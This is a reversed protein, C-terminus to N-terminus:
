SGAQSVSDTQYINGRPHPTSLTRSIEANGGVAVHLGALVARYFTLTGPMAGLICRGSARSVSLGSVGRRRRTVWTVFKGLEVM